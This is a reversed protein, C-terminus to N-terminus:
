PVPKVAKAGAAVSAAIMDNLLKGIAQIMETVNSEESVGAAGIHASKTTAGGNMKEVAAKADGRTKVDSRVTREEITGDKNTTRVSAEQHITNCGCALLALLLLIRKM